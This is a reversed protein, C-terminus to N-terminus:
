ARELVVDFSVRARPAGPAGAITVPRILERSHLLPDKGYNKDPDGEFVPDTAFYLQTILQKHGPASVMYHVHQCVRDPYHGPMVSEFGYRGANLPLLGRYDFGHNDYVGANSAHWVEVVADDLREGRTDFVQGSVSLPLGPAGEPALKGARPAGRKFFPGLANPPTPRRPTLGEREELRPVIEAITLPPAVWLLGAAACKELLDRRSLRFVM